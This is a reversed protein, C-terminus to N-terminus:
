SGTMEFVKRGNVILIIKKTDACLYLANESTAEPNISSTNNTVYIANLSNNTTNNILDNLSIHNGFKKIDFNYKIGFSSDEECFWISGNELNEHTVGDKYNIFSFSVPDNQDPM